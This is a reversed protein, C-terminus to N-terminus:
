GGAQMVLPADAPCWRRPPHAQVAEAAIERLALETAADLDAATDPLSAPSGGTAAAYLVLAALQAGAPAAHNGDSVHLALTPLRQAALDFAQGIPPVCAPAVSAIREHLGQIRETEDIGRRPWEPFMVPLAGLRRAEASLAEAEATSYEILGSSSYKQAQLVVLTWRRGNLMARSDAHNWREDLFMSGPGVATGVTRGTLGARLMVDLRQALGSGTTHSNGFMLVQVQAARAAEADGIWAEPGAASAGSDGGGGGCGVLLTLILLSVVRM